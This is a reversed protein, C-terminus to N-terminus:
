SEAFISAQIRVPVAVGDAPPLGTGHVHDTDFQWNGNGPRESAVGLIGATPRGVSGLMGSRSGFTGPIGIGGTGPNVKAVGLM